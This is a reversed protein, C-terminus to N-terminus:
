KGTCTIVVNLIQLGDDSFVVTDAFGLSENPNATGINKVIEISSGIVGNYEVPQNFMITIVCNSTHAEPATVGMNHRANVQIVYRRDGNVPMQHFYADVTWCDSSASASGSSMYVGEAEGDCVVVVPKEYKKM